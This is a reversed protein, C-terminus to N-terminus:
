LLAEELSAILSDVEELGISLRIGGCTIGLKLKEEDSLSAHSMLYPVSVLSKSSGLSHSLSFAEMKRVKAFTEEFSASDIDVFLMSGGKRMQRKAVEYQPHSDLLPYTVKRVKPSSELYRAIKLASASMRDIRLPLTHSGQTTLAVELSGPQLGAAKRSFHFKEYLEPSKSSLSGMMASSHGNVHKSLSTLIVDMGLAFGSQEYSSTFSADLVVLAGEKHSAEAIAELDLIKLLPNTPSELYVIKPQLERIKGYNEVTSLDVYEFKIGLREYIRFLRVTCGYLNEECLVTDGSSLTLLLASLASIGSAYVTSYVDGNFGYGDIAAVIKELQKIEKSGVRGYDFCEGGDGSDPLAYGSTCTLTLGMPDGEELQSSHLIEYTLGKAKSIRQEAFNSGHSKKKQNGM